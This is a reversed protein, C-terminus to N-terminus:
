EFDREPDNQYLLADLFIEFNEYPDCTGETRMRYIMEAESLSGKAKYNDSLCYLNENVRYFRSIRDFQNLKQKHELIM